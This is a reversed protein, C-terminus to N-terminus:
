ALITSVQTQWSWPLNAFSWLVLPYTFSLDLKDKQGFLLVFKMIPCKVVVNFNFNFNFFLFFFGVGVFCFGNKESWFFLTYACFLFLLWIFYNLKLKFFCEGNLIIVCSFENTLLTNSFWLKLLSEMNAKNVVHQIQSTFKSSMNWFVFTEKSM